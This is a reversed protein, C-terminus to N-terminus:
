RDTRLYVDPDNREMYREPAALAVFGHRAYLGHADRTVLVWRRLRGLAPHAMITAILWKGLGAGQFEDDIFVDALYAFTAEDTIVRAFGIQRTADAVVFPLSGAISAAVVDRPIGQAWYSRRSLYEHVFDLDVAAPDTTIRFGDREWTLPAPRPSGSM